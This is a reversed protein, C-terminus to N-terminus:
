NTNNQDYFEDKTITKTPKVRKKDISGKKNEQEGSQNFLDDTEFKKAVRM